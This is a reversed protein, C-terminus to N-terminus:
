PTVKLRVFRAAPASEISPLLRFTVVETVGDGTPTASGVQELNQPLIASWGTLSASTEISYTMSGPAIRRRYSYSLYHKGDAPNLGTGATPLINKSATTPNSGFAYELMDTVGDGDSDTSATVTAGNLNNAYAWDQFTTNRTVNLTYTQTTTGDQATVVVAVSTSTGAFTISSSAAGSTVDIGNVTISASSSVAAPTVSFTTTANPMGASYALVNSSFAPSLVGTSLALGSLRANTDPTTFTMDAGNVTGAGNTSIARFHYTTAPTLGTLAASVATSTSGTITAPVAVITSGYSTDPGYDFSVAAAGGNANATGNLTVTTGTVSTAALTAASSLNPVAALSLAHYAAPGGAVLMFSEGTALTSNNVAVPVTSTTTSNNGLQGNSNYGWTVVTGDSCTAASQYYGASVSIVTKGALPTGATTVAVPVLSNTTSGIGLQGNNNYGWTILTGDSCLVVNHCYGCAMDVITKGALPTGATTVAVPLSSNSTSNNGLQGNANYGWAALTGDSCLVLNHTYGCAIDVISKGELPTGTTIVAVPLGSNLTTNNGLQGYFNYGWTSLSGDQCLVLNHYFGSRVAVVSKGALATGATTVALPLGSNTTTGNGLQGFSNLGWAALSGDTCLVVNHGYGTSIAAPVKGALATGVTTVPAPLNSNGFGNNGLQGNANMGWAALTGDSCLALSHQYGAALALLTRSALPTAATTVAAPILSDTTSNNGLEGSNNWGWSLPRSGAWLLVLDNGTGGNYSAVFKYTVGNYSLNVAQGHALNSFAGGILGLGTNNVVMLQTGPVPVYNLSLNVVTGTANILPTTVPVDTASSYTATISSAGTGVLTLNFASTYPDNSALHLAASRGLSAGPAFTVAVATTAGAAVTSAPATTITFDSANVGDITAGTISLDVAGSNGVTFTQTVSAGTTAGGFDVTAGNILSTADSQKVSILPSPLPQAVIALNHSASSGSFLQAPQEGPAFSSTSVLVPVSSTTLSNNGLEGNLNYGWTAATGDSCLALSHTLGASVATVTRGVLAGINVIGAPVSSNTTTGNGLQGNGGYGWSAITGDSCLALNHYTGAKVSLVTKGSLIGSSIVAVPVSSSSTSNNGLQGFGNYGWSYLTGDSCLALAHGSGATLVVVTKGSLVGATSVAVPVTSQSTSNNGLQGNSNAGWAAVTGDSCLALSHSSGAAVAVVTKGALVGSTSVAVPVRSDTTSNNGLQGNSNYGWAAVTGDSCLALSHSTGAAVAVVTRGALVGSSSVAVPTSSDSASNNGLQGNSNSGWAALTGDSCLGLSHAGGAAHSILTKGSLPTGTITVPMPVPFSTGGGSGLQGNFNSGWSAVTGDSCLAVSHISGASLVAISKGALVGAGSVDVPVLSTASSNSGLQGNSNNGWAAFTGDSCLALTHAFGGAMRTVTKGALVGTTIVAVPVTSQVLSNNGLQGNNNYGWSVLRGDSCLALSHSFGASVKTVTKGALAGSTTVAVPVLSNTTSNNGLQGYFNYGWSTLTGDSCLALNHYQGVALASVTKGALVGSTTVAVPVSSNTTSNNGLQGNGNYGWTFVTGDSCLAVSHYYAAFVAVISKGALAGGTNVTVPVSSQTTSNNGLQGYLNYGWAAVTGDSCLALTHFGGASVATVTKGALAGGTTVVVPVSSQTTGNNGLQGNSNSGWAAVTGDSCLAVTHNNGASVSTVTKGALVGSASVTAPVLSTSSVNEGLQGFSNQGWAFPRTAAWVLVLDNGTGGYYNAVFHYTKGAYTMAVDQGQQLNIFRGTIFSAGTNNIVTLATGPVPAYNLAFNVSSGTLNISPASTLLDAASNYAATVTASATGVLNINFSSTNPDNSALHLVASRSLPGAPTFTVVFTTTAGGTVTSAPATTVAYESANAGDITIAAISLDARGTNGVTFSQTLGAGVTTSGFDITSAGSVLNAGAGQQVFIAPMQPQAVIALNHYANSGACIQAFQEGQVLPTATVASPVFSALTSNGLEGNTNSGWAVATRDSCLATSHNYGGIISVVTKGALVGTTVVAVPVSSNTTSNNGLQGSVNYGWDYVTGDSCLALSHYYGASVATVTKGSLVGSTTVAVPVSSQTTSSNGLQGYGNYGWTTVTGDSCLAMSHASGASLSVVTKGSLVGSTNVLVPVLSQTTSNNGLQGSSNFGWAAVTGDSCLALSYSSGASVAVVTKGSLVGSTTVAVPVLSQTTSNNGLQGTSNLGWAAVTGDSCLALSHSAGASVAIVTKGALVGSTTVAVPVSTNITSNNGLQGNANLGWAALTGDSCLGLSHNGGVAHAIVTKGSLLTGATAVPIPMIPIISGDNGLQGNNNSGWAVVSGDSCLAVSHSGGGAAATVTKGALVGAASVSLPVLSTGFGGNGLQGTSNKGWAAVTSDSCLAVSHYSGGSVAIVTKGALATGSTTVAVPISSTSSLSNNGLQGYNNYGWAATTGDSCVALSHYSGTSAATVTKGSLVGSTTVAVPVSSNTTTSNGLQGYANYGWAAVTGDSCVALSHYTGAAISVATKGALVGTTVVAVPVNSQTTSNNGLQGYPNSGWATVTGDSCLALSYFYGAAVATVTKGALVGTTTVLVPSPSQTTTNNGLQGSSNNGWTVLTGDSCVAMSHVTGASIAIVTKGALVGSTNVAVPVASQTTSSNGLQGSSNLGWAAVTGDSCLALTHNEGASVSVVRKGALAGTGIVSVPLTYTSPANNGLQGYINMGWAMPRNYAWQLVLDNGTGGYYNAAFHYTRGGYVMTVDQGQALNSFRGGIFGLGTNNVVTFSTGVTPAYGLTFSVTSGTALFSAATLPVTAASNYTAALALAGYGTLNIDFSGTAPDNSVIHLVATRTLTASPTFTVTMTSSGGAAIASAPATTVAFDAANTGNITVASINLPAAGSNLLTFVQSTGTGTPSAGFDVTSSGSALSTGVPQQVGIQPTLPTAVVSLTHYASQGSVTQVPVEGAALSATSVAVPVSSNTIDSNGLEGELNYGWSALSGDSCLATSHYTGATISAVSKGSLATGGVSVAVPVSSNSTTNNGLQGYFNYGWAFVTGDACLALSHSQGAAIAVATKGIPTVVVPVTSQSTSANGLQGYTNYGWAVLTGDSCLALSHYQGAAIAIVTKGALAGSTTVAVPVLSNTTTGNGLQGSSNYGWTAVTGDSCLAMCHGQGSSIAVVTKGALAGTTIVAVPVSSNTTSNNGLQGYFNYGWAFVMGDSSLALSHSPGAALDVVTKGSMVGLQSVATPILSSTTSGNGLQGATNSGWASIVGDSGLALSHYLGAAEAIVSVGALPTGATVTAVPASFYQPTNNGLQGNFDGGWGALTGDSCIAFNHNQGVGISSVSKGALPTGATTVLVPLNSQVIVSSNGLQGSSNYGWSVLSGDSCRVLCHVNGGGIATVTKGVLAGYSSVLVAVSSNTTTNNGIVGYFNDGWGAVTGDSCLAMSHSGAASLATVTKGALGTGATTVAVPVSSNTTSNNGLQGSSNYGWAVTTGDSCLALNHYLGGSVSTVTKGALPTGTTTVLVPVTSQTTSNNGLQGYNNYGWTAVTGDSCLAVCHYGNSSIATVTKGSLVGSTTVLVPVTSQTTSNNGLQGNSNYGWAALTGDSCLVLSHYTGAAIAAVTKGALVGSTTVLVPVMSQTTSNNGLQGNSNLGSAALTGDSCLFLTHSSGAAIKTVTKGALVGTTVVGTPVLFNIPNNNGLQSYVDQGWAMPRNGAWQLVLDNGTGGYYNAVFSYIYGNYNLSVTQGQTLNDFAGNIFSLGTNRVVMLSAGTAPAYNLSFNVTSGTATFNAASIPVAAGSNYVAALTGGGTGSVNIAFSGNVPDNSSLHLVGGRGLAAGPTFTVAFTTSAGVAVTSAPASTVAFDSGNAGDFTIGAVTLPATGNNLLTFTRKTSAGVTCSGFDVGSSGNSLSTGAPQQVALLPAPPGAVIALTHSATGSSSVQVFREGAALSASNVLVPVKSQVQSNNGLEGDVANGCATVAGDSCLALSHYQGASIATVSKGSLVGSTTVAVPVLSNTLSNNGLQGYSDNGWAVSTGDTCLALSHYLGASVAAVSRGSLVGSTSVAVPITSQTTSNNGLQGYFNFGWAVVTGDSCLALSYAQGMSIAAVSKGSLATGSTSVAVAVQSVTTSNNGLQGSSNLGWTVVTGDSCLAMSSSGGASIAVVTKGALATGTTTVAVPVLSQTPSGNGLQGNANYGWAVVTGDSCLALSHLQGASIAIVTKGALAGTMTVAGPVYSSVVTGNGLQGNSNSGWAALTGDSCLALSHSSGTSVALLTKGSLLTGATSVPGPTLAYVTSNGLQGYFNYGWAAATGDTCLAVSHSGGGSLSALTKGSFLATSAAVATTSLSIGGNGLQGNVGLGCAAVTGDSCLLLSHSTGAFVGTVNKGALATGTTTFAAPVLSNTTSNIGLQGYVNLGWAVVTGDTCLALNHSAGEVTSVASVVKGSLAGSTSVAVAVLSQITSNNGLQGSTNQGWAALTGDSCLALSHTGGAAVATVTKGALATGTTTVLAPVLSPTTGNNGLQGNSNLGWAAVTGDSCRALSHTSGAAISTVTKGSLVGSSIVAVPVSSQTSSNNGLQGSNNSGWAVLTGDSCLALNHSNGAAIATVTKGALPTGSVTVTVADGATITSNNGLQGSSNLGWAVLTGDTCLALTHNGGAAIKSITKGALAGTTTVGTPLTVSSPSNNGLQSNNNLGWAVARNSAWQLVLDNGTGGYYNAVFNYAVGNYNLTLQQGQSLNSFAGSIFNLSTNNVLTLNTGTPPAFNLSVYVNGSATFGNGAVTVDTAANFSALTATTTFPSSSTATGYGTTVTINGTVSGVPVPVTATIQSQSNVTFSTASVGNFAVSTVNVYNTGTITVSSGVFGSSPTFSAITPTGDGSLATFTSSGTIIGGPTTVSITGTTAGAPVVATIQSDSDVTFSASTGNFSVATAGTFGNGTLVVNTGAIGIAPSFGFVTFPTASSASGLPGAVTILGTTAGAPVTATIQSPSNATFTASVGNFKVSTVTSLGIGSIVVSSGPLGSAPSFGSIAPTSVAQLAPYAMVIGSGSDRDVGPGQIDLATSTMALRVQAPTLAPNSSRILAAIAAAHPAAASTGFFPAFGPVTTTVGDAAAIDPKQIVQGGTSSFDGPTIATGDPYYFMRRPGDTSFTELPNTAGGVFVAPSPASAVSVAAVGFANVASCGNHGRIKGPTTVTLRGRGTDLHIFRSAAAATKVVVVREGANLTGSSEYPDQTGSQTTTSSRLVAGTSDIVFLDYDNSSAGLQDAWFLDVRYNTGGSNVINSTVGGGYDLVQASKSGVTATGGSVFDGEWCGSTGVDKNGSNGASSFYMVGAASVDVVAKAVTADQFPSESFYGVDDVIVTCGAAALDRINQAFQATSPNATAFYLQADPALDQVIELMATGEDGTGAQGPLVSVNSNVNGSAISAALTDVGNSMVGIKIGAGTAGFTTRATDARHVRDGETVVSGLNTIMKDAQRITQVDKRGALSEMAVVPLRARIARESAFHNVVVGGSSQIAALLEPSVTATIDVEVLGRADPQVDLQLQPAGAIKEGRSDKVLYILASDMKIQAPTRTEKEAMLAEIQKLTIEKLPEPKQNEVTRGNNASPAPQPTPVSQAERGGPTPVAGATPPSAPKASDHNSALLAPDKHSGVSASQNESAPPSSLRPRLFTFVTVAIVVCVFLLAYIARRSSSLGQKM